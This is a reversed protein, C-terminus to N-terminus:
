SRPREVLEILVGHASGPHIFAVMAGDAGARPSEDLLRLGAVRARAMAEAVDPVEFALHHIGEGRRVLFRDLPGTPTLPELLEIRADPVDVFAVRVNEQSLTEPGTERLGLRRYLSLATEIRRVILGLHALRVETVHRPGDDRGGPRGCNM